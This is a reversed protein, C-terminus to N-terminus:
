WRRLVVVAGNKTFITKESENRYQRNSRGFEGIDRYSEEGWSSAKGLAYWTKEQM